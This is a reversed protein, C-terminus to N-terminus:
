IHTQKNKIQNKGTCKVQVTEKKERGGKEKEEKKRMEEKAKTKQEAREREKVERNSVEWKFKWDFGTRKKM